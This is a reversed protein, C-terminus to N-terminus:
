KEFKSLYKFEDGSLASKLYINWLQCFLIVIFALGRQRDGIRAWRLMAEHERKVERGGPSNATTFKFKGHRIQIQWLSNSSATTFKIQRSPQPGSFKFKGHHIQVKHAVTFIETHLGHECWVLNFIPLGRFGYWIPMKNVNSGVLWACVVGTVIILQFAKIRCWIPEQFGDPVQHDSPFNLSLM